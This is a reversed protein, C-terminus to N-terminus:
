HELNLKPDAEIWEKLLAWLQAAIEPEERYRNRRCEPDAQVDFLQLTYSQRTPQYILKWKGRRVMRDKARLILEEYEPKLALTGSAIDPIEIIDLVGPYRLHDDPLGPVDTLWIGTENFAPLNLSVGPNHMLPALSMGDISAPAAGGALEVLTPAIDISRTIESVTMAQGRRPDALIFPIRPSVEGIVSNGQGWTAHEFFEMGHDSYIVVITNDALGAKELYDLMLGVEHDFQAVSGNYLKLIQDLDFEERPEAQRRIIDFPDNLRAMAFKSAGDYSPDAYKIYWPYESAFPPHTTSYFCNLFFPEPRAALQATLHRARRGIQSSLPVGGLYYLEPLV